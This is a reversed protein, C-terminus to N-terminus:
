QLALWHTLCSDFIGLSPLPFPKLGLNSASTSSSLHHTTPATPATPPRDVEWVNCVTNPPQNVFLTSLHSFPKQVWINWRSKWGPLFNHDLVHTCFLKECTTATCLNIFYTYTTTSLSSEGANIRVRPVIEDLRMLWWCTYRAVFFIAVGNAFCGHRSASASCCCVIVVYLLRGLMTVM